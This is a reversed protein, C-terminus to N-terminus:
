VGVVQGSPALRERRVSAPVLSLGGQDLRRPQIRGQRRIKVRQLIAAAAQGAIERPIPAVPRAKFVGRAGPDAPTRILGTGPALRSAGQELRTPVGLRHLGKLPNFAQLRLARGIVGHEATQQEVSQVILRRPDLQLLGQVQIWIVDSGQRILRCQEGVKSAEGLRFGRATGSQFAIGIM